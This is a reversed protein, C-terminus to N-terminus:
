CTVVFTVHVNMEPHVTIFLAGCLLPVLSPFSLGFQLCTSCFELEKIMLLAGLLRTLSVSWSNTLLPLVWAWVGDLVSSAKAKEQHHLGGLSCSPLVHGAGYFTRSKSDTTSM